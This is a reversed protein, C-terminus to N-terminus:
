RLGGKRGRNWSVIYIYWWFYTSIDVDSSNTGYKWENPRTYLKAIPDGNLLITQHTFTTQYQGLGNQVGRDLSVWLISHYLFHIPTRSLMWYETLEVVCTNSSHHYKVMTPSSPIFIFVIHGTRDM